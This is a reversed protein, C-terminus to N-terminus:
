DDDFTYGAGAHSRGDVQWSSIYGCTGRVWQCSVPEYYLNKLLRPTICEHTRRALSTCRNNRFDVPCKNRHKARETPVVGECKRLSSRRSQRRVHPQAARNMSGFPFM